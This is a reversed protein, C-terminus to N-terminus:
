LFCQDIPLIVCYCLLYDQIFCCCCQNVLYFLLYDQILSFVSRNPRSLVTLLGSAIVLTQEAPGFWAIRVTFLQQLLTCAVHWCCCQNVLYFLLYDQILSFVSRNPRSLVTLLGSAIVLTQEAPGFWAIRVTFLQQLLTCAVHGSRFLAM